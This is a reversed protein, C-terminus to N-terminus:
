KYMDLSGTDFSSYYGLYYGSDMEADAQQFDPRKIEPALDQHQDTLQHPPPYAAEFVTELDPQIGMCDKWNVDMDIDNIEESLWTPEDLHPSHLLRVTEGTISPLLSPRSQSGSLSTQSGYLSTTARLDDVPAATQSQGFNQQGQGLTRPPPRRSSKHPM